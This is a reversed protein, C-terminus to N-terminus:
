PNWGKSRPRVSAKDLSRGSSCGIVMDLDEGVYARRTAHSAPATTAADSTAAHPEAPGLWGAVVAVGPALSDLAPVWGGAVEGDLAGAGADDAGAAEGDVEAAGADGDGAFEPAAPRATHRVADSSIVM